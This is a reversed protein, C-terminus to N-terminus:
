APGRRRRGPYSRWGPLARVPYNNPMYMILLGHGEPKEPSLNQGQPKRTERPRGHDRRPPLSEARREQGQRRTKEGGLDQAHGAAQFPRLFPAERAGPRTRRAIEPRRGRGQPFPRHGGRHHPRDPAQYPSVQLDQEDIFLFQTFRCPHDLAPNYGRRSTHWARCRASRCGGTVASGARPGLLTRM